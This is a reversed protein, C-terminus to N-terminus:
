LVTKPSGGTSFWQEVTHKEPAELISCLIARQQIEDSKNVKTPFLCLQSYRPFGTRRRSNM